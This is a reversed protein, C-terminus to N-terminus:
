RFGGRKNHNASNSRYNNSVTNQNTSSSLGIYGRYPEKHPLNKLYNLSHECLEHAKNAANSVETVWMEKIKDREQDTIQYILDIKDLMEKDTDEFNARATDCHFQFKEMEHKMTTYSHKEELNYETKSHTQRPRFKRPIYKQAIHDQIIKIKEKSNYNRMYESRRYYHKKRWMPLHTDIHEEVKNQSTEQPTRKPKQKTNNSTTQVKKKSNNTQSQVTPATPVTHDVKTCKTCQSVTGINKALTKLSILEEVVTEHNKLTVAQQDKLSIIQSTLKVMQQQLNNTAALLSQLDTAKITVNEQTPAASPTSFIDGCAIDMLHAHTSTISFVSSNLQGTPTSQSVPPTSRNPSTPNLIKYDTILRQRQSCTITDSLKPSGTSSGESSRRQQILTKPSDSSSSSFSNVSSSTNNLEDDFETRADKLHSNELESSPKRKSVM